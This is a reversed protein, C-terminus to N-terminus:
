LWRDLSKNQADDSADPADVDDVHVGADDDDDEAHTMMLDDILVLAAVTDANDANDAAVM